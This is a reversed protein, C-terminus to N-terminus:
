FNRAAAKRSPELSNIWELDLESERTWSAFGYYDQLMKSLKSWNNSKCVLILKQQKEEAKEGERSGGGAKKM